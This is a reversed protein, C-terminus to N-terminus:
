KNVEDKQPDFIIRLVTKFNKYNTVKGIFVWHQLWVFCILLIITKYAKYKPVLKKPFKTPQKNTTCKVVSLLESQLADM